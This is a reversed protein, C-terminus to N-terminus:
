ECARKQKRGLSDLCSLTPRQSYSCCAVYKKLLFSYIKKFAVDNHCFTYLTIIIVYCCTCTHAYSFIAMKTWWAHSLKKNTRIIGKFIFLHLLMNHNSYTRLHTHTYIVISSSLSAYLLTYGHQTRHNKDCIGKM